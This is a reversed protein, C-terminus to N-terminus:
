ADHPGVPAHRLPCHAYAWCPILQAAATQALEEDSVGVEVQSPLPAQILGGVWDQPVKVQAFPAQLVLQVGAVSGRSQTGGLVQTSLEHPRRTFPAAHVSGLCHRLPKQVWLTHQSTGHASAAVSLRHLVQLPVGLAGAPVQAKTALPLASGFDRQVALWTSLPSQEFSPVQSPLPAQRGQGLPVPHRCSLQVPVDWV